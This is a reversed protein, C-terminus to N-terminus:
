LLFLVWVKLPAQKALKTARLQEIISDMELIDRDVLHMHSTLKAQTEQTESIREQFEKNTNTWYGLMDRAADSILADIDARVQESSDRASASDRLHAQSNEQWSLPVSASQEVREIGSHLSVEGADNHLAYCSQDISYAEAKLNTDADLKGKRELNENLQREVKELLVKMRQQYRKINDVERRLNKEVADKVQDIGVRNEREALCDLCVRLPRKTQSLAYELHRRGEELHETEEQLKELERLLVERWERIDRVRDGLKNSVDQQTVVTKNNREAILVSAESRIREAVHRSAEAHHFHDLNSNTWEAHTYQNGTCVTHPLKGMISLWCLWQISIVPFSARRDFM